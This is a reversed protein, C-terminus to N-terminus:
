LYTSDAAFNIKLNMCHIFKPGFIQIPLSLKNRFINGGIHNRIILGISCRRHLNAKIRLFDESFQWFLMFEIFIWAVSLSTLWIKCTVDGVDQFWSHCSSHCQGKVHYLKFIVRSFWFRIWKWPWPEFMARNM